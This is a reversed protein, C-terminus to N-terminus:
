CRSRIVLHGLFRSPVGSLGAMSVMVSEDASRNLGYEVILGVGGVTGGTLGVLINGLGRSTGLFLLGFVALAVTGLWTGFPALATTLARM